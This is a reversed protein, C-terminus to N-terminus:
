CVRALDDAFVEALGSEGRQPGHHQFNAEGFVPQFCVPRRALRAAGGRGEIIERPRAQGRATMVGGGAGRARQDAWCSQVAGAPGCAASRFGMQASGAGSCMELHRSARLAAVPPLHGGSPRLYQGIPSCLRRRPACTACCRSFRRTPRQRPRGHPGSEALRVESSPGQFGNSCNWVLFLRLDPVGAAQKHLTRPVTELNHNMVDPPAQDFIFRAAIDARGRFDPM